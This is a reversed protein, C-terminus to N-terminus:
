RKSQPALLCVVPTGVDAGLMHAASGDRVGVELTRGSGLYAVIQGSRVDGFTRRLAGTTVGCVILDVAERTTEASLNTILNGFRDVYVVQGVIQESEVIPEQVELQRLDTLGSGLGTLPEKRLLRSAAPAFVDRGHFTASAAAPVSLEVVDADRLIEGFVGNDPGIFSHTRMQGAIARRNTGVGPDVVVLHVTGSPFRWWTRGLIYAAMMVNGPEVDHSVDIITLEDVASVLIAKMEALYPDRTGFDTMLTVVPSM